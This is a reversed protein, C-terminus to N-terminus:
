KKNRKDGKELLKQMLKNNDILYRSIIRFEKEMKEIKIQYDLSSSNKELIDFIMEANMPLTVKHEFRVCNKKQYLKFQSVLSKLTICKTGDLRLNKYDKNLEISSIWVDKEDPSVGTYRNIIEKFFVFATSVASINIPHDTKIRLTAKKSKAGIQFRYSITGVKLSEYVREGSYDQIIYTLVCNHFNWDFISGDRTEDVVYLDGIDSKIIDPTGKLYTKVTNVNIKTLGAIEKPPLGHPHKKLCNIIKRIKLNKGRIRTSVKRQKKPM